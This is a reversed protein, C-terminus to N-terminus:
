TGAHEVKATQGTHREWRDVIVDCYAPSIEMGFAIRDTNEAALMTSGSGMFPDYVADGHDTYARIFFEPLGVPYAATHGTAEHTSAFTPLRNGPYALGAKIYEGADHSQGQVDTIAQSTGRRRKRAGFMAGNGGQAGGWSTDGVGPGGPVPVNASAHRVDDPRMKWDGRTFQYVPEFQNKFRRTVSKPVGNREWCFETAFHWGWERVHAIVLDLVYLETDLGDPTVGPKINVFWSGDDALHKAVNAAIPAFWEVYEAPPIPRFGSSQDYERRDAYPPSTVALNIQTDALLRAVHDADRSDGCMLRHNGLTYVDGPQTRPDDPPELPDPSPTSADASLAFGALLEDLADGDFGTGDLDPLSQLLEVLAHDDYAALDNSRNDVLVIRAATDDDVDVFTAAIEQWGLQRAAMLTHNGALVESTRANVVIPRYQGHRELSKVIAGVDGQRPNRGYPKLSAVPVALADLTEPIGERTQTAATATM